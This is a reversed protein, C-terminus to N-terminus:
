LSRMARNLHEASKKVLLAEDHAEASILRKILIILNKHEDRIKKRLFDREQDAKKDEQKM